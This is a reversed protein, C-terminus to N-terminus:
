SEIYKAELYDLDDLNELPTEIWDFGIGAVKPALESLVETTLPATWVWTNIGFKM